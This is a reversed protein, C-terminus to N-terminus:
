GSCNGGKNEDLEYIERLIPPMSLALMRVLEASSIPCDTFLWRRIMVLSGISHYQIAFSDEASLTELGRRKCIERQYIQETHAMIHRGLANQSDESLARRYFMPDERMRELVMVIGSLRFVGDRDPICDDIIQNFMWAALDYIDRFHYYFTRRDIGCKACLAGVRIRSFSTRLTMEKIGEALLLKTRQSATM